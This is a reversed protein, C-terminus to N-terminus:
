RLSEELDTNARSRSCPKETTRDFARTNLFTEAKQIALIWVDELRTPAKTTRQNIQHLHVTHILLKSNLWTELPGRYVDKERLNQSSGSGGTRIQETLDRHRIQSEEGQVVTCFDGGLWLLTISPRARNRARREPIVTREFVFNILKKWNFIHHFPKELLLVRDHDFITKLDM